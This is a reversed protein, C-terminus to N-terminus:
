CFFNLFKVSLKSSNDRFLIIANQHENSPEAPQLPGPFGDVRM